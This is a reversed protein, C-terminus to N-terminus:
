PTRCVASVCRCPTAAPAYEALPDCGIAVVAWSGRAPVCSATALCSNSAIVYDADASCAPCAMPDSAQPGAVCPSDLRQTRLGCASVLLLVLMSRM